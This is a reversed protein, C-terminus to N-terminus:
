PSHQRARERCSASRTRRSSPTRTSGPQREVGRELVCVSRGARAMRSAAIGGGYGSGVVVVDYHAEIDEIASTLRAM